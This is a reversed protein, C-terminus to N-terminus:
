GRLVGLLATTPPAVRARWGLEHCHGSAEDVWEASGCLVAETVSLELRDVIFRQLAALEEGVREASVRGHWARHFRPVGGAEVLCALNGEVECLLVRCSSEASSSGAAAADPDDGKGSAGRGNPAESGVSIALTWPAIRGVSWGLGEVLSEYERIVEAQAGVALLWDAPEMAVDGSPGKRIVGGGAADQRLVRWDIRAEEPELPLLDRLLWYAM